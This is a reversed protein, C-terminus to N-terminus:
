PRMTSAPSFTDREAWIPPLSTSMKSAVEVGEAVVEPDRLDGVVFDDAATASYEPRKLDAGRVWFGESKLSKVFHSGIFGGAGNVLVRKM